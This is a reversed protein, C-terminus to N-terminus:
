IFFLIFPFSFSSSLYRFRNRLPISVNVLSPIFSVDLLYEQVVAHMVISILFYFFILALDKPGYSYLVTQEHLETVNHSM